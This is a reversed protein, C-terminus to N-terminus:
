FICPMPELAIPVAMKSSVRRSGQPMLSVRLPEAGRHALALAAADEAGFAMPVPDDVPVIRAAPWRRQLLALVDASSLGAHVVHLRLGSAGVVGNCWVGRWLRGYDGRGRRDRLDRLARRAVRVATRIEGPQHDLPFAFTTLGRQMSAWRALGAPWGGLLPKSCRARGARGCVSPWRGRAPKRESPCERLASAARLARPTGIANLVLGTKANQASMEAMEARTTM